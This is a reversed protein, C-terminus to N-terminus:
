HENPHSSIDAVFLIPFHNADKKDDTESVLVVFQYRNGDERDFFLPSAHSVVLRHKIPRDFVGSDEIESYQLGDYETRVPSLELLFTEGVVLGPSDKSVPVYEGRESRYLVSVPDWLLIIGSYSAIVGSLAAAISADPNYSSCLSAVEARISEGSIEQASLSSGFAWWQSADDIAEESEESQRLSRRSWLVYVVLVLSLLVAQWNNGMMRRRYHTFIFEYFAIADM